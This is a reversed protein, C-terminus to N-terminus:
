TTPKSPSRVNEQEADRLAQRLKALRDEDHKLSESLRDHVKENLTDTNLQHQMGVVMATLDRVQQRLSRLYPPEAVEAERERRNQEFAMNMALTDARRAGEQARKRQEIRAVADRYGPDPTLPGSARASQALQLCRRGELRDDYREVHYRRLELHNQSLVGIRDLLDEEYEPPLDYLGRWPLQVIYLQVICPEKLAELGVIAGALALRRLMTESFGGSMERRHMRHRGRYLLVVGYGGPGAEYAGDGASVITVM